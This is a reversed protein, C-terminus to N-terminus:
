GLKDKGKAATSELKDQRWALAFKEFNIWLRENNSKARRYLIYDRLKNFHSIYTDRMMSKILPEDVVKFSCAIAINEYYSLLYNLKIKLEKNEKFAENMEAVPIAETRSM